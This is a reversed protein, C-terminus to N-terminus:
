STHKSHQTNLTAFKQHFMYRHTCECISLLRCMFIVCMYSLSNTTNKNRHKVDSEKRENEKWNWRIKKHWIEERKEQLSIFFFVTTTLKAANTYKILSVTNDSALSKWIKFSGLVVFLFSTVYIQWLSFLYKHWYWLKM